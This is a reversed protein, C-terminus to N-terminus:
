LLRRTAQSPRELNFEVLALEPGDHAASLCLTGGIEDKWQGTMRASEHVHGHLTILPQRAEIFRRVAISGIHVDMPVHDVFKGDLAARDLNTKYPPTHFLFVVRSLDDKGTLIELDKAITSYKIKEHPVAVSRIGEEPSICGPDVYQSVDYREWDKLQFPTPPVYSYGYVSFGEFDARRNHVYTWYGQEEAEQISREEFRADDNGLIIFVTPYEDSLHSRIKGLEHVLFDKTFYGCEARAEKLPVMGHPLLDGGLFVADPREEIIREFLKFYRDKRGHLDSVFFCLPLQAGKEKACRRTRCAITGCFM